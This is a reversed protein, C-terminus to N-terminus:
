PRAEPFQRVRLDDPWESPDGGKRDRLKPQVVQLQRRGTDPDTRFRGTPEARSWDLPKAGLQKVFAPVGAASCQEVVSRIWAVDCPRAKPGSEGGVVVWDLQHYFEYRNEDRQGQLASAHCGDEPHEIRHLNVPGLLPEASVWRVAAPTLLLIPIRQDATAQDEVSVGLWVNPLPWPPLVCHFGRTIHQDLHKICWRVEGDGDTVMAATSTLMAFWLRAREPRKTLILFTHQPSSAVIGFVAAIFEDPVDEHFLDSMSNVFIRAPKRWRLPADLRDAHTQVDTFRRPRVYPEKVGRGFDREDEVPPYLRAFFREAMTEAYCHKCGTSVKTCGSVPNWVRDAWEISTVSM